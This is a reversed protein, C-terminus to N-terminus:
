SNFFPNKSDFDDDNEEEFPNPGDPEEFPNPPSASREEAVLFPNLSDEKSLSSTTTQTVRPVEENEFPNASEPKAPPVSTTTRKPSGTVLPQRSIPGTKEALTGSPIFPPQDSGYSAQSGPKTIPPTMSWGQPTSRGSSLPTSRGSSSPTRKSPSSHHDPTINKPLQQVPPVQSPLPQIQSVPAPNMERSPLKEELIVKNFVGRGFYDAVVSFGDQANELQRHFEEDLDKNQEQAKIIDLVKRNEPSCAPCEQDNEAYSEFCSQHYSHQCLFHVSPLELPHSCVSCKSVQFIKASSKMEEIESRKIKTEERYQEILREDEAIQDNEQQLRRVIYDKIVTLTATSNHALTQIVLLPPLLNHRDIQSLVDVIYPKCDKEKTAFYSLAQVWLNPDQTGYRKCVDLINDYKDYEMHYHLIQQYLKAKEYLYLIGKSFNHKQCLVLALDMDYRDEGTQLLDMAKKELDKKYTTGDKGHTMDNLCLELFTNYIRQSSEPQTKIMHELFESLKPSNNVFIHIFEEASARQIPPPLGGQLAALDVLPEDETGEVEPSADKPRYDTCLLKLLETTKDPEKSMLTKGYKKMNEMAENFQLGSIHSLAKQFDKIDELQIKLYWDHSKQKESLYLAHKFYGAQRCVKIATEVDFNVERGETMIFEELKSNDKLKTYCNLLLTTHDENALGQKHLAELYATLNHIRQADLFKRIVYSPELKGITRIYQQIAGDHDGKGYLHDGYQTFIDTLGDSDYHQSKALNIAMVYLNKKFLTELKTQTDKERLLYLKRDGGLIYLSGWEVVVSIVEPVPASYAIFKNTIDYVTVMDMVKGAGDGGLGRPIAKNDKTVVLLYNRFWQLRSKNGEFILCSGREDPQYFYLADSRGIVFQNEQSSDSLVSCGISCGHLDLVVKNCGKNTIGFSIVSTETSVFLTTSYQSHRFALGTVMSKEQYISQPKSHRDKMVDGRYLTISGDLYGVAMLNLSESVTLATVQTPKGSIPLARTIRTVTPNGSKDLKDVNWVKILPNIGSEDNGISVIINHQKLQYLHTVRLEYARFSIVDLDRSLMHVTGETDGFVISGHGSTCVTIDIDKLGTFDEDLGIKKVTEKDFFSFRRWQLFTM